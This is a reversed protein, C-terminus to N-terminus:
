GGAWCTQGRRRPTPHSDWRAARGALHAGRRKRQRLGFLYAVGDRRSGARGRQSKKRKVIGRRESPGLEVRGQAAEKQATQRWIRSGQIRPMTRPNKKRCHEKSCTDRASFDLRKTTPLGIVAKPDIRAEVGSFVRRKEVTRHGGTRRSRTRLIKGVGQREKHGGIDKRRRAGGVRGSMVGRPGLGVKASSTTVGVVARGGVAPWPGDGRRRRRWGRTLPRRNRRGDAASRCGCTPSRERAAWGGSRTQGHRGRQETAPAARPRGPWRRRDIGARCRPHSPEVVGERLVQGGVRGVPTTCWSRAGGLAHTRRGRLKAHGERSQKTKGEGRDLKERGGKEAKATSSAGAPTHRRPRAEGM